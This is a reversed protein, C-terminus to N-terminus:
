FNRPWWSDPRVAKDIRELPWYLMDLWSHVSYRLDDGELYLVVPYELVRDGDPREYPDVLSLYSGVYLVPLLLLVAAFIPAASRAPPSTNQHPM